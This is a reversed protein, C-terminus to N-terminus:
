ESLFMAMQGRVVVISAVLMAVVCIISSFRDLRRQRERSDLLGLTILARSFSTAVHAAVVAYFALQLGVVLVFAGRAGRAASESLLTFTQLHAVLLPVMLFAAMRQLLTRWNLRQYLGMRTGDGQFFVAYIGMAAHLCACILFPLATLTNLTPNYYFTLYAYANYGVHVLLAMTAVLACVANCKKLWVAVGEDTRVASEHENESRNVGETGALCIIPFPPM